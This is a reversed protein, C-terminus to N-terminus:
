LNLNNFYAQCKKLRPKFGMYIVPKMLRETLANASKFEMDDIILSENESVRRVIHRHRWYSLGAPMKLGEDIFCAEDHNQYKEEIRSIWHMNLPKNFKIHTIDGVETGDFQELSVLPNKPLLFLFLRENFHKMVETYYGKVPTHLIVKM